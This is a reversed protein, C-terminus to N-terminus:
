RSTAARTCCSATTGGIGLIQDGAGLAHVVYEYTTGATVSRDVIRTTPVRETAIIRFPDDTGAVRRGLRHAVVGDPRGTWECVVANAEIPQCTLAVRAITPQPESSPVGGPTVRVPNSTALFRDGAYASIRYVYTTGTRVEEDRYSSISLDHSEWRPQSRNGPEERMLVERDTEAPLNRWACTVADTDARCAIAPGGPRVATTTTTPRATTTTTPRQRETTSTTPGPVSPRPVEAASTTTTSRVTTSTTQVATTTTAPAATTTTPDEEQASVGPASLLRVSAPQDSPGVVVAIGVIAALVTAAAIWRRLHGM